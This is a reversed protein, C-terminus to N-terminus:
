GIIKKVLEVIRFKCSIGDDDSIFKVDGLQSTDFVSETFCMQPSVVSMFLCLFASATLCVIKRKM